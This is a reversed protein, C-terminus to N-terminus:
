VPEVSNTPEQLRERVLSTLRSIAFPKQIFTYDVLGQAKPDIELEDYGSMVIVKPMPQLYRVRALLDSIRLSGPFVADTILLSPTLGSEILECAADATSAIYPSLGISLMLRSIMQLLEPQDEVILVQGKVVSLPEEKPTVGTPEAVGSGMPLALLVTTGVGVQSTIRIDGGSQRAFGQVMSLGLGSGFGVPKTTFFPETAKELNERSIGRGTDKVSFLVFKSHARNYSLGTPLEEAEAAIAALEIKGNGNIADRSNLILNLLATTLLAPDALVLLGSRSDAFQLKINSPIVRQAMEKLDNLALEVPISRSELRAKRAFAMLQHVLTAGKATAGLAGRIATDREVHGKPSLAM